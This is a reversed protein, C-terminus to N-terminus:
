DLVKGRITQSRGHYHLSSNFPMSNVVEIEVWDNQQIALLPGPYQGNIFIMDREHGDPSGKDYTLELKFQCQSALAVAALSLCLTLFSLMAYFWLCATHSLLISLLVCSPQRYVAETASPRRAEQVQVAWSSGAVHGNNSLWWGHSHCARTQYYNGPRWLFVSM